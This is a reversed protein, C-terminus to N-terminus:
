TGPGLGNWSTPVNMATYGYAGRREKKWLYVIGQGGQAHITLLKIRNNKAFRILGQEVEAQRPGVSLHKKSLLSAILLPLSEYSRGYAFYEEAEADLRLTLDGFIIKPRGVVEPKGSWIGFLFFLIAERWRSEPFSFLGGVQIENVRDMVLSVSMIGM